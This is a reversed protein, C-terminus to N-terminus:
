NAEPLEIFRKFKLTKTDPCKVSHLVNKIFRLRCGQKISMGDISKEKLGTFQHSFEPNGTDIEAAQNFEIEGISFATKVDIKKLQNGDFYFRSQDPFVGGAINSEGDLELIIDGLSDVEFYSGEPFKYGGIVKDQELSNRDDKLWTYSGIAVCLALPFILLFYALKKNM